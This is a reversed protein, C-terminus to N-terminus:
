KNAEVVFWQALPTSAVYDGQDGVDSNFMAVYVCDPQTRLWALGETWFAIKDADARTKQCALEAIGWKTFGAAKIKPVFNKCLDQVSRNAKNTYPAVPSWWNYPDFGMVVRKDAPFYTEIDTVSPDDFDGWGRFIATPILDARNKAFIAAAFPDFIAKFQAGTLDPKPEHRISLYKLYGDKPISDLWASLAQSTPNDKISHVVHHGSTLAPTLKSGLAVGPGEFVRALPVKGGGRTELDVYDSSGILLKSPTPETTCTCVGPDGKDGKPGAPGTDGKPGPPGQLGQPGADGKVGQVGQVGPSGPDGKVGQPGVPGEPGPIGQPGPILSRNELEGIADVAATLFAKLSKHFSNTSSFKVQSLLVLLQEELM